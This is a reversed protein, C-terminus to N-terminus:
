QILPTWGGAGDDIWLEHILWNTGGSETLEGVMVFKYNKPGLFTAPGGSITVRVDLYNTSSTITAEYDLDTDGPAPFPTDWYFGSGISGYDATETPSFNQYVTLRDTTNLDAIFKSIRAEITLPGFMCGSLALALVLGLAVFGIITRTKM